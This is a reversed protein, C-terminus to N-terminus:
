NANNALFLSRRSLSICGPLCLEGLAHARRWVPQGWAHSHDQQLSAWAAPLPMALYLGENAPHVRWSQSCTRWTGARGCCMPCGGQCYSMLLWCLTVGEQGLSHGIPKPGGQRTGTPLSTGQQVGLLSLTAGPLWCLSVETWILPPLCISFKM